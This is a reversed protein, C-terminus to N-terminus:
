WQQTMLLSLSPTTNQQIQQPPLCIPTTRPHRPPHQQHSGEFCKMAVSILAVPPLLKPLNGESGQACPSHRDAQFMYTNCVRDPLPQFRWHLCKVTPGLMSQTCTRTIRRAWCEAKHINVQKFTKSVDAVSLMIVCDEPVAPARMCAESNSPEFRAYFPNLKDPLNTNSPLEHSPKGKYDMITKLGQWM